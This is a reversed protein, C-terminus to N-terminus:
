SLDTRGLSTKRLTGTGFSPLHSPTSKLRSGADGPSLVPSCACLTGSSPSVCDIRKYHNLTGGLLYPEWSFMVIILSLVLVFFVSCFMLLLCIEWLAYSRRNTQEEVNETYKFKPTLFLPSLSAFLKFCASQPCPM